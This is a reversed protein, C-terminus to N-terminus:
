NGGHHSHGYSDHIQRAHIFGLIDNLIPESDKGNHLEARVEAAAAELHMMEAALQLHEAIVSDAAKDAAETLAHFAQQAEAISATCQICVGYEGITLNHGGYDFSEAKPLQNLINRVTVAAERAATAVDPDDSHSKIM